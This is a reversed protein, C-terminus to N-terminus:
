IKGCEACRTYLLTRFRLNKNRFPSKEHGADVKSTLGGTKLKIKVGFVMAVVRDGKGSCIGSSDMKNGYGTATKEYVGAACERKGGTGVGSWRHFRRVYARCYDSFLFKGLSTYPVSVRYKGM